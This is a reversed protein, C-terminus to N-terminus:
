ARKSRYRWEGYAAPSGVVGYGGFMGAGKEYRVTSEYWNRRREVTELWVWGSPHSDDYKHLMVPHWAFWAHWNTNHERKAAEREEARAKRAAKHSTWRM